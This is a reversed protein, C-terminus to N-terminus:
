NQAQISRLKYFNYTNQLIGGKQGEAINSPISVGNRRIQNTLGYMESKPFDETTKYLDVCLQIAKQYVTLDKYSNM